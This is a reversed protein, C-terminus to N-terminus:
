YNLVAEGRTNARLSRPLKTADFWPKDGHTGTGDDHNPKGNNEAQEGYEDRLDPEVVLGIHPRPIDIRVLRLDCRLCDDDGLL